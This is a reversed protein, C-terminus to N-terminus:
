QPSRANVMFDATQAFYDLMQAEITPDIGRAVVVDDLAAAM